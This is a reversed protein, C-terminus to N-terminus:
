NKFCDLVSQLDSLTLRPLVSVLPCAFSPDGVCWMAYFLTFVDSRCLVLILFTLEFGIKVVNYFKDINTFSNKNQKKVYLFQPANHQFNKYPLLFLTRFDNSM